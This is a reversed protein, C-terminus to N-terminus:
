AGFDHLHEFVYLLLGGLCLMFVLALASNLVIRDEDSIHFHHHLGHQLM